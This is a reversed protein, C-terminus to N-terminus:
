TTPTQLKRLTNRFTAVQKTSSDLALQHYRQRSDLKTLIKCVHLRYIFDLEKTKMEVLEPKPQAVAPSCWTTADGNPVKEFIEEKVGRDLSDKVPKQLHDPVPRPKQDVPLTDTEM